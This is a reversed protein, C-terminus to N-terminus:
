SVQIVEDISMRYDDKKNDPSRLDDEVDNEIGEDGDVDDSGRNVSVDQDEEEDNDIMRQILGELAPSLKHEETDDLGYDLAQYIVLGLCRVVQLVISPLSLIIYFHHTVQFLNPIM